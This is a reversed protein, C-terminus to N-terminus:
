SNVLAPTTRISSEWVGAKATMPVVADSTDIGTGDDSIYGTPTGTQLDFPAFVVEVNKAHPAGCRSVFVQVLKRHLSSTNRHESDGDSCLGTIKSPMERTSFCVEIGTAQSSM